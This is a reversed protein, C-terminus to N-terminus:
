SYNTKAWFIIEMTIVSQCSVVFLEAVVVIVVHVVVVVIRGFLLKSNNM